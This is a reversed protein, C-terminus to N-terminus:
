RSRVFRVKYSGGRILFSDFGAARCAERQPGGGATVNAWFQPLEASKPLPRRILDEIERFSLIVESTRVGRLYECLADYASM